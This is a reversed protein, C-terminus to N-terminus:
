KRTKSSKSSSSSSKVSKAPAPSSPASPRAAPAPKVSPASPTARPSPSPAVRSPASPQVSRQPQPAPPQFSRQPQPSPQPQISRQPQPQFSRQPQPSPQPQFSRQPQPSPQPQFSRQPQPSPSRDFGGQPAPGRMAPQSRQGRDFSDVRSRPEFPSVARGPSAMHGSSPLTKARATGSRTAFQLAKPDHNSRVKPEVGSPVRAEALSPGKIHRGGRYQGSSPSTASSSGGPGAPAKASGGGVSAQAPKYVKSHAGIRRVINADRVVYTHIHHHFVHTTPCFVYAAPHPSWIRVAVGGSWYYDPPYPAWGIYGYESTRWSVWAPAYVRGPIWAWGRGAIWVWRGYHFPIHGWQYDSVWLWDNDATLEWHGATQYPAFDAGVLVASPVWVTGYTADEVWTGYPSLPERFDTLASPDTEVYYEASDPSGEDSVAQTDVDPAAPADQVPTAPTKSSPLAPLSDSTYGKPLADGGAAQALATTPAAAALILALACSARRALNGARRSASAPSVQPALGFSSLPKRASMSNM